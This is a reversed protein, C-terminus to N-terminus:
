EDLHGQMIAAFEQLKQVIDPNDSTLVIQIGNEINSIEHSIEDRYERMGVGAFHGFKKVKWEGDKGAMKEKMKEWDFDGIQKARDKLFEFGNGEGDGFADSTFANFAFGGIVFASVIVIALLPKKIENM